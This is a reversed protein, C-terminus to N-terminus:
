GRVIEGQARSGGLAAENKKKLAAVADKWYALEDQLDAGVPRDKPTESKSVSSKKKGSAM